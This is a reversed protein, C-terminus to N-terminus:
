APTGAQVSTRMEKLSALSEEVEDRPLNGAELTEDPLTLLHTYFELGRELLEGGPTQELLAFLRDEAGAFDGRLADYEFVRRETVLPLSDLIRLLRSVKERYFAILGAETTLAHLYLELTKFHTHAGVTVGQAGQVKAEAYLLEAMFLAKEVEFVGTTSLLNLLDDTSLRHVMQADSGTSERYATNIHELAEDVRGQGTLNEVELLTQELRETMRTLFDDKLPM